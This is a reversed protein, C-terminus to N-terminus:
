YVVQMLIRMQPHTKSFGLRPCLSSLLRFQNMMPLGSIQLQLGWHDSPMLSGMMPALHVTYTGHWVLASFDSLNEGMMFLSPNLHLSICLYICYSRCQFSIFSTTILLATLNALQQKTYSICQLLFIFAGHWGFVLEHCLEMATNLSFIM